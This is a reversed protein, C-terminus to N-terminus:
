RKWDPEAVQYSRKPRSSRNPRDLFLAASSRGRKTSSGPISGAERGPSIGESRGTREVETRNLGASRAAIAGMQHQAAIDSADMLYGGDGQVQGGDCRRQVFCPRVPM